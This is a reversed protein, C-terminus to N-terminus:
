LNTKLDLPNAKLVRGQLILLVKCNSDYKFSIILKSSLTTIGALQRKCCISVIVENNKAQMLTGPTEKRNVGTEIYM